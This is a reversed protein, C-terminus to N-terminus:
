SSSNVVNPLAIQIHTPLSPPATRLLQPQPTNTVTSQPATLRHSILEVVESSNAIISVPAVSDANSPSAPANIPGQISQPLQSQLFNFLLNTELLRLVENVSDELLRAVAKGRKAGRLLNYDTSRRSLLRPLHNTTSTNNNNNNNIPLSSENVAYTKKNNGLQVVSSSSTGLGNADFCKDFKSRLSGAINIQYDSNHAIYLEYIASCDDIWKAALEDDATNEVHNHYHNLAASAQKYFQLLELCLSRRCYQEFLIYLQPIALVVKINSYLHNTSNILQSQNNSISIPDTPISYKAAANTNTGASAPQTIQLKLLKATAQQVAETQFLNSHSSLVTVVPKMVSFVTNPIVMFVLIYAFPFNAAEIEYRDNRYAYFSNLVLYTLTTTGVVSAAVRTEFAAGYVDKIHSVKKTAWLIPGLCVLYVSFYIYSHQLYYCDAGCENSQYKSDLILLIVFLIVCFLVSISLFRRRFNPKLVVGLRTKRLETHYM